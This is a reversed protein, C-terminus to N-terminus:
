VCPLVFPFVNIEQLEGKIIQTELGPSRVFRIKVRELTSCGDLLKCHWQLVPQAIREQVWNSPILGVAHPRKVTKRTGVGTRTMWLNINTDLRSEAIARVASKEKRHTFLLFLTPTRTLSPGHEFCYSSHKQPSVKSGLGFTETHTLNTVCYNPQLTHLFTRWLPKLSTPFQNHSMGSLLM